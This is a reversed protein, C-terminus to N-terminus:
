SKREWDPFIDYIDVTDLEDDENSFFISEKREVFLRGIKWGPHEFVADRFDIFEFEHEM